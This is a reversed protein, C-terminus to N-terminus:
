IAEGMSSLIQSYPFHLLQILNFNYINLIISVCAIGVAQDNHSAYKNDGAQGFLKELFSQVGGEVTSQVSSLKTKPWIQFIRKIYLQPM